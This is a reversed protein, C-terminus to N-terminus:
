ELLAETSAANTWAAGCSAREVNKADASKVIAEEIKDELPRLDNTKKTVLSTDSSESSATIAADSATRLKPASIM